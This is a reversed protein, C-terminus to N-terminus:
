RVGWRDLAPPLLARYTVTGSVLDHTRVVIGDRPAEVIERDPISIAHGPQRRLVLWLARHAEALQRRAEILRQDTATM